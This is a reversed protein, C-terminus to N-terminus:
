RVGRAEARIRQRDRAVIEGAMRMTEANIARILARETHLARHLDRKSLRMLRRRVDHDIGLEEDKQRRVAEKRIREVTAVDVGASRAIASDSGAGEDRLATKVRRISGEKKKKSARELGPPQRIAPRNARLVACEARAREIALVNVAGAYRARALDFEIVREQMALRALLLATVTEEKTLRRIQPDIKGSRHYRRPAKWTRCAEYIMRVQHNADISAECLGRRRGIEHMDLSKAEAVLTARTVPRGAALLSAAAKKALSVIRPDGDAAQLPNEAGPVPPMTM